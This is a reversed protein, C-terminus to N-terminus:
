KKVEKKMQKIQHQLALGLRSVVEKKEELVDFVKSDGDALLTTYVSSSGRQNEVIAGIMDARISIESDTGAETLKIYVRSLPDIM